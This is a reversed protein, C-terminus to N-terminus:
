PTMTDRPHQLRACRRDVLVTDWISGAEAASFADERVVELMLEIAAVLEDKGEDISRGQPQRIM